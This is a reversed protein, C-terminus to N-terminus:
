SLSSITKSLIDRTEELQKLNGELQAKQGMLKQTDVNNSAAMAAKLQTLVETQIRGIKYGEGSGIVNSSVLDAKSVTPQKTPQQGPGIMKEAM